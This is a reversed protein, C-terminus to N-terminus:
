YVTFKEVEYAERLQSYGSVVASIGQDENDRDGNVLRM